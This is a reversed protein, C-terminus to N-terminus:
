RYPKWEPRATHSNDGTTESRGHEQDARVTWRDSDQSPPVINIQRDAELKRGDSTTYRAFLHLNSNRPPKGSWPLELYIAPQRRNVMSRRIAATDIDWRDVRAAVGTEAPDLLVVSVEAPARIIKNSDDLPEIAVRIGETGPQGNTDLGGTLDRNLAIRVVDESDAVLVSPANITIPVDNETLPALAGQDTVGPIEIQPEVLQGEEIEPVTFGPEEDDDRRRDRGSYYGDDDAHNRGKLNQALREYEYQLEYLEDELARREAAMTELQLNLYPDRRCGTLATAAMLLALLRYRM